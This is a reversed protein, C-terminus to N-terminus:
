KERNWILKLWYNNPSISLLDKLYNRDTESLTGNNKSIMDALGNVEENVSNVLNTKAWTVWEKKEQNGDLYNSPISNILSQVDSYRKAQILSSNENKILEFCQESYDIAQSKYHSTRYPADYKLGAMNFANIANGYEAKQMMSNGRSIETEYIDLEDQSIMYTAGFCGFGCVMAVPLVIKLVIQRIRVNSSVTLPKLLKDKQLECWNDYKLSAEDYLKRIEIEAKEIDSLKENSFYASKSIFSSSPKIISNSLLKIYESKKSDLFEKIALTKHEKNQLLIKDKKIKYLNYDNTGLQNSIVQLKGLILYLQNDAEATYYAPADWIINKPKTILDKLAKDYDKKLSALMEPLKDLIDDSENLYPDLGNSSPEDINLLLGLGFSISDFVYKVFDEKFNSQELFSKRLNDISAQPNQSNGKFADFIQIGWGNSLIERLIVKTAPYEDYAGYDALINALLISRLTEIGNADFVAKIGTNLRYRSEM